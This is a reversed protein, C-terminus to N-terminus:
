RYGSQQDQGLLRAQMTTQRGLNQVRPRCSAIASLLPSLCHLLHKEGVVGYQHYQSHSYTIIHAFAERRM